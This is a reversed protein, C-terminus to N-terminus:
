VSRGVLKTAIATAIEGARPKMEARLTGAQAALAGRAVDLGKQAEARAAALIEAERAVGEAHIRAREDAGRQRAQALRSEYEHLRTAAEESLARAEKRGGEMNAERADRLRLYPRFVVRSLFALLLLFLALQIWLTSDIDILPVEPESAAVLLSLIGYM